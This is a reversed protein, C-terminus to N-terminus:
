ASRPVLKAPAAAPGPAVRPLHGLRLTFVSGRGPTSRVDVSGRHAEAIARVIALGLGTGRGQGAPRAFPEFLRDLDEPKIGFGRDRVEFAVEDGTRRVALTVPESMASSRLANEILADLAARVREGDAVIEGGGSPAAEAEVRRGAAVTWRQAVEEVLATPDFPELMLFDPHDAAALALLRDSTRSLRQLEDLVVELDGRATSLQPLTDRAVEAHGFAVTLPTRLSHSADRLFMREREHADALGAIAREARRAHWVMAGFVAAMLPIELMYPMDGTMQGTAMMAVTTSVTVSGLAITTWPRPWVRVAFVLALSLWLLHFPLTQYETGLLMLGVCVVAFVVWAVDLRRGRM